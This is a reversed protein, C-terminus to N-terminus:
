SKMGAIKAENIAVGIAFEETLFDYFDKPKKPWKEGNIYVKWGRHVGKKEVKKTVIKM